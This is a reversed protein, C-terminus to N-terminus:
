ERLNRYVIKRWEIPKVEQVFPFVSWVCGMVAGFTFSVQRSTTPNLREVYILNPLPLGHLEYNLKKIRENLPLNAGLNIVGSRVNKKNENWLLCYGCKTSSLDLGLILNNM